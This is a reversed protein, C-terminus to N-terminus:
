FHHIVRGGFYCRITIYESLILNNLTCGDFSSAVNMKLSPLIHCEKFQEVVVTKEITKQKTDTKGNKTKEEFTIFYKMQQNNPNRKIECIIKGALFFM